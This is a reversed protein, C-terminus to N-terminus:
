RKVAYYTFGGFEAGIHAQTLDILGALQMTNIDTLLRLRNQLGTLKVREAASLGNGSIKEDGKAQLKVIQKPADDRFEALNGTFYVVRQGRKASRVWARMEDPTDVFHGLKELTRDAGSLPVVPEGTKWQEALRFLHYETLGPPFEYRECGKAGCLTVIMQFGDRLLAIDAEVGDPLLAGLTKQAWARTEHTYRTTM